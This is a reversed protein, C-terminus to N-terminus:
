GLGRRPASPGKSGWVKADIIKTAYRRSIAVRWIFVSEYPDLMSSGQVFYGGWQVLRGVYDKRRNPNKPGGARLLLALVADECKKEWGDGGCVGGFEFPHIRILPPAHV